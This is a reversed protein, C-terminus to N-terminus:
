QREVMYGRSTMCDEFRSAAMNRYILTGIGLLWPGNVNSLQGCELNDLQQREVSRDFPVRTTKYQVTGCASLAMVLCLLIIKAM